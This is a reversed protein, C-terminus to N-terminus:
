RSVRNVFDFNFFYIIYITADKYGPRTKKEIVVTRYQYFRRIGCNQKLM